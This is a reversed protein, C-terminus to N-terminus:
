RYSGLPISVGTSLRGGMPFLGAFLVGQTEVRLAARRAFEWQFGGGAMLCFPPQLTDFTWARTWSGVAGYTAFFGGRLSRWVTQKVQIAYLAETLYDVRNTNFRKSVAFIGEIALNRTLPATVRVHMMPEARVNEDLYLGARLWTADVGVGLEVPPLKPTSDTQAAVLTGNLSLLAGVAASLQILRM